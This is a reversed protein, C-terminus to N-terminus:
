SVKSHKILFMMAFDDSLSLEQTINVINKHKSGLIVRKRALCQATYIDLFLCTDITSIM